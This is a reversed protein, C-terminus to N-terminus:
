KVLMMKQTRTFRQAGNVANIRYVYLGSALNSADFTSNHYGATKQGQVLTAVRRGTIDYVSLEVYAGVPLGYSITTVPNFPNPYNGSLEFDSPLLVGADSYTEQAAMSTFFIAEASWEGTEDDEYVPRVRWRYSANAELTFQLAISTGALSTDAVFHDSSSFDSPTLQFQYETAGEEAEWDFIPNEPAITEQVPHNLVIGEIVIDSADRIQTWVVRFDYTRGEGDYEGHIYGEGGMYAPVLEPQGMLVAELALIALPEPTDFRAYRHEATELFYGDHYHRSIINDAVIEARELYQPDPESRYLELLAFIEKYGRDQADMNIAVDVGPESGINGIGLGSAISRAMDWMNEDGSLRYARAYTMLFDMDATIPSWNTGEAGYYGTRPYSQGTLDTGDAWMPRFQNSGSNYGHEALANLSSIIGDLFSEGEEGMKEAMVMQMFGNEVYITKIRGGWHVYGELAVDGYWQGFQNEARDGFRSNTDTLPGESPPDERRLPKSYQYVGLGTDPHRANIYLNNLHTAWTKAGEEGHLMYLTNAAYILDSGANIFTLGTDEFFPEPHNFTNDWLDGLSANWSGHRNMNLNGWDTIHAAWLARLFQATKDEDVEWMLEYFPFHNKFEHSNSDFGNSGNAPQINNLDIFQHGGWQILGSSTLLHDYHFQISAKAADVYTDDEAINSLGTFFRFLNQQSAMNSIKYENGNFLWVAPEGNLANVGDAFLPTDQGSWQDKGTDLVHDAYDILVQLRESSQAQVAVQQLLFVACVLLAFRYFSNM